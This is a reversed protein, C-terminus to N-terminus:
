KVIKIKVTRRGWNLAAQRSPFYVDIFNGKVAGGTDEAIGYGYGPIFLKTGLPIVRPDVAITGKRPRTGTATRSGYCYATSRVTLSGLLKTNRPSVIAPLSKSPKNNRSIQQNKPKLVKIKEIRIIMNNKIKSDLPVQVKDTSTLVVKQEKIFGSVNSQATRYPGKKEGNIFLTVSPKEVLNVKAKGVLNSDWSISPQYKYKVEDLKLGKSKLAQSLTQTQDKIEIPAKSDGLYIMVGNSSCGTLIIGWLTLVVLFLKRM